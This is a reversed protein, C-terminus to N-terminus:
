RYFVFARSEISERPSADDPADPLDIATHISCNTKGQDISDFTKFMLVENPRMNSFYFWRHNPNYTALIIEGIHNPARREANFTDKDDISRSDCLALPFNEVPDVLPRWVNIIQFRTKSLAEAEDGLNENLCVFGSKATYDNHVLTAPERVQKAERLEPDSARVTHDFFEVRYAETHTKILSRLEEEYLNAIKQQDLFNTVASRCKLLDFGSADQGDFANPTPSRSRADEIDVRYYKMGQDVKFQADRGPGSAYYVPHESAEALYQIETSVM